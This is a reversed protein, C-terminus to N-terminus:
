WPSTFNLNELLEERKSKQTSSVEKFDGVLSKFDLLTNDTFLNLDNMSTTFKKTIGELKETYLNKFALDRKMLFDTIKIELIELFQIEDKCYNSTEEVLLSTLSKLEIGTVNLAKLERKIIQKQQSPTVEKTLQNGTPTTTVLQGDGMIKAMETAIETANFEGREYLRIAESIDANSAKLHHNDRLKNRVQEIQSKSPEM